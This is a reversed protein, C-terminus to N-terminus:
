VTLLVVGKEILYGNFMPLLSLFNYLFPTSLHVFALYFVRHIVQVHFPLIGGARDGECVLIFYFSGAQGELWKRRTQPASICMSRACSRMEQLNLPFIGPEREVGVLPLGTGASLLSVTGLRGHVKQYSTDITTTAEVYHCIYRSKVITGKLAHAQGRLLLEGQIMRRLQVVADVCKKVDFLTLLRVLADELAGGFSHKVWAFSGEPFDGDQFRPSTCHFPNKGLPELNKPICM